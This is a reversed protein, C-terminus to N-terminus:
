VLEVVTADDNRSDEDRHASKVLPHNGLHERIASRMAGTGVGHLIRVSSFGAVAADNLFTEVRELGEEVRVGRLDLQSEAPRQNSRIYYISAGSSTTHAPAARDLQSVPLRARMTGLLVEVTGEDGPPNIVEVARPIGRLYVRDGSRLHRIWDSRRSAPPQWEPLRLEKRVQTLEKRAQTIESPVPPAPAQPVLRATAKEVERLRRMMEEVRQLVQHRAEEVMESKRDQITSLQLELETSSVDARALAHEAERHKEEALYREEQLERLLNESQRHAPSLHSRANEVIHTDLGLRSAITLAYSRGPLGTSLRYTPALTGPDLEVSANVMHEQEQVFAAVDRQHTTAILLVNRDAFHRLIAKVLAAGEEPDTSTGVEDILALSRDTSRAMITKLNQIHSSFTSLSRQISQQDGIDAYVADFLSLTAERAPIHLGSQAMLILLGVTKLAVTKGGANPGTILLVPQEGGVKLTIPVVDGELLPHRAEVLSIIQRESQVVTPAASGTALSYSAKAMALGLQALLEQGRLLDGSSEEVKASLDRIIREEEREEALRLERWQNGLRISSMPEVFITAGSDSVDHVIGPLRHKMEAKVLVVMRGNRQTVIPEQLVNQRQLRRITRELSETLSQYSQRTEERLARLGPSASDLVEGSRGIASALEKEVDRMLPLDRALTGLMPLDRHRTVAARAGHGAKLTDHVDRLEEGTLIGGLAARTLAQRLDRAEALDITSGEELFRQAEATEGQRRIVEEMDLSPELDLALEKAPLFATYSGLRERVLHFELSRMSDRAPDPPHEGDIPTDSSKPPPELM